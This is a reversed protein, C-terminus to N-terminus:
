YVAPLRGVIEEVAEAVQEQKQIWDNAHKWESAAPTGPRMPRYSLVAEPDGKSAGTVTFLPDEPTWAANAAIDMFIPGGVLLNRIPRDFQDATLDILLRPAGGAPDQRLILVLHGNWGGGGIVNSTEHIGVSHAHPPWQSIPVKDKTLHWAAINHVSVYVPMPRSTVGFRGLVGIGIRTSLVCTNVTEWKTRTYMRTAIAFGHLWERSPYVPEAGEDAAKIPSSTTEAAESVSM